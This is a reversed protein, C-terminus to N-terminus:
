QFLFTDTNALQKRVPQDRHGGAGPCCDCGVDIPRLCKSEKDIKGCDIPSREDM